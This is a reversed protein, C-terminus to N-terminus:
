DKNTVELRQCLVLRCLEPWISEKDKILKDLSILILETKTYEDKPNNVIENLFCTSLATHVINMLTLGRERVQQLSMQETWDLESEESITADTSQFTLAVRLDEIKFNLTELYDSFNNCFEWIHLLREFDESELLISHMVPKPIVNTAGHLEPLKQILSDEIPYRISNKEILEPYNNSFIMFQHKILRKEELKEREAETFVQEPKARSKKKEVRVTTQRM